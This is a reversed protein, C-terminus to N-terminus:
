YYVKGSSKAARKPKIRQQPSRRTRFTDLDAPAIRYKPRGGPKTTVNVAPLEGSRIWSLVKDPNVGLRRAVQPPTLSDSTEEPLAALLKGVIVLAERPSLTAEERGMDCGLMAAERRCTEVIEACEIAMYYNESGEGFEVPPGYKVYGALITAQQSLYRRLERISRMM